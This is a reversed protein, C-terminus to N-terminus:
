YRVIIEQKPIFTFEIMSLQNEFSGNYWHAVEMGWIILRIQWEHSLTASVNDM